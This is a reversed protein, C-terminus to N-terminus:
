NYSFLLCFTSILLSNYRGYVILISPDNYVKLKIEEFSLSNLVFENLFLFNGSLFLNILPAFFPDSMEGKIGPIYSIFSITSKLFANEDEQLFFPLGYNIINANVVFFIILLLFVLVVELKKFIM